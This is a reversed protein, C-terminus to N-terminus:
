HENEPDGMEFEESADGWLLTTDCTDECTDEGDRRDSLSGPWEDTPRVAAAAAATASASPGTRSRDRERKLPRLDTELKVILDLASPSATNADRLFAVLADGAHRSSKSRASPSEPIPSSSLTDKRVAQVLRQLADNGKVLAYTWPPLPDAYALVGYTPAVIHLIQEIRARDRLIDRIRRPVADDKALHGVDDFDSPDLAPARIVPEADFPPVILPAESALTPVARHRPVFAPNCDLVKSGQTTDHEPRALARSSPLLSDRVYTTRMRSFKPILSAAHKLRKDALMSLREATASVNPKWAVQVHGFERVERVVRSMYAIVSPPEAALPTRTGFADKHAASLKVIALRGTECTRKIMAAVLHYACFILFQEPSEGVVTRALADRAIIDSHVESWGKEQFERSRAAVWTEFRREEGIRDLLAAEGARLVGQVDLAFGAARCVNSCAQFALKSALTLNSDSDGGPQSPAAHEGEDGALDDHAIAESAFTDAECEAARRAIAAIHEDDIIWDADQQSANLTPEPRKWHCTARIGRASVPVGSDAAVRSASDRVSRAGSERYRGVVGNSTAETSSPPAVDSAASPSSLRKHVSAIDDDVATHHPVVPARIVGRGRAADTGDRSLADSVPTGPPPALPPLTQAHALLADLEDPRLDRLKLGDKCWLYAEIRQISARHQFADSLSTIPTADSAHVHTGTALPADGDNVQATRPGLGEIVVGAGAPRAVVTGANESSVLVDSHVIDTGHAFAPAGDHNHDAETAAADAAAHTGSVVPVYDGSFVPMHLTGDECARLLAHVQNRVLTADSADSARAMLLEDVGEAFDSAQVPGEAVTTRQIEVPATVPGLDEVGIVADM